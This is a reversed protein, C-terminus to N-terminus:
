TFDLEVFSTEITTKTNLFDMRLGTIVSNVNQKSYNEGISTVLNGINMGLTNLQRYSMELAQRETGYWLGAAAAIRQLRERDDEYISGDTDIVLQGGSTLDTVTGPAILVLRADPIVLNKVREWAFNLTPNTIKDQFNAPSEWEVVIRDDSEIAVTWLTPHEKDPDNWDLAGTKFDDDPNPDISQSTAAADTWNNAAIFHPPGGQVTMRVGPETDLMELSVSWNRAQAADENDANVALKHGFEYVRDEPEEAAVTEFVVFPRKYSDVPSLISTDGRLPLESLFRKGRWWCRPPDVEGGTEYTTAFAVKTSNSTMDELVNLDPLIYHEDEDEELHEVLGTFAPDLVFRTFVDNYVERSRAIQNRKEQTSKDLSDYDDADSDGELYATEETDNWGPKLGEDGPKLTCVVTIPAGYVKVIAALQTMNNSLKVDDVDLANEFNLTVQDENAPIVKGDGLDVVQDAFTFVNVSIEFQDDTEAGTVTYGVGRRRDILDDLVDKVNRLDTPVTKDYWTLADTPAELKLVAVDTEAATQPRHFELIYKVASEADWLSAGYPLDSFIYGDYDGAVSASRNGRQAWPIGDTGNFTIGRAVRMNATSPTVLPDEARQEIVSSDIITTELLYILGFATPKQWGDPQYSTEDESEVSQSGNPRQEDNVFYGYWTLIVDADDNLIELKVFKRYLDLQEYLGGPGNELQHIYDGYRYSFTAQDISPAAVLNLSDCYFNPIPDGWDSLRESLYVRQGGAQYFIDDTTEILTM